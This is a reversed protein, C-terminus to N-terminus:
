NKEYVEGNSNIFKNKMDPKIKGSNAQSSIWLNIEKIYEEKSQYESSKPFESPIQEHFFFKSISQELGYYESQKYQVAKNSTPKGYELYKIYDPHNRIDRSDPNSNQAKSHQFVLMLMLSFFLIAKNM